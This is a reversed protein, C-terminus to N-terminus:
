TEAFSAVWRDLLRVGFGTAGKRGLPGDKAARDLLATDIHAWPVDEVFQKLLTAGHVADASAEDPAVQRLDAIDSELNADYFDDLPMRWLRDGTAEGAAILSEALLDDSAFLGAFGGGLARIISGTLTAVDVMARPRFRTAVYHLADGLVLRGEADTDIIEVTTGGHLRIVDGPRYAAGDLANMALPVAATVNIGAQRGALAAVAGAVAAGGAMDGKMDWMGQRPKLSIGGTDFTIGKGVLAVPQEASSEAGSWHLLLLRPAVDAGQGVALLGGCGERVLHDAELVEVRVGLPQVTTRVETVFSEPTILNSPANILDRALAIGAMSAAMPAFAAEAAPPGPVVVSLSALRAVDDPRPITRLRGYRYSRLGAGGALLAAGEAAPIGAEPPLAAIIAATEFGAQELAAVMTGGTKEIQLPVLKDAPGCGVLMVTANGLGSPAPVKLTQGFEGTFRSAAAARSLAGDTRDDVDGIAGSWSLGLPVAMAVAPCEPLTATFGIEM